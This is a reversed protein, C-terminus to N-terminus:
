LITYDITIDDSSLPATTFTVANVASETYGTGRQERLGNRYVATSSTRYSNAATFVTNVGDKVGVLVEGMVPVGEGPPGQPGRAGPAAAVVVRPYVDPQVAVQPAAVQIQAAHSNVEVEFTVPTSM